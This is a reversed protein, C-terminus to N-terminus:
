FMKAHRKIFLHKLIINLTEINVDIKWHGMSAELMLESLEVWRRDLNFKDKTFFYWIDVSM